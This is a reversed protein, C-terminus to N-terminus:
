TTAKYRVDMTAMGFLIGCRPTYQRVHNCDLGVVVNDVPAGVVDDPARFVSAGDDGPLHVVAQLLDDFLHALLPIGLDDFQLGHGIVNVQQYPDVGLVPNVPQDLLDLTPRRPKQTLLELRKPGPERGEAGIAVENGCNAASWQLHDLLVDCGFPRKITAGEPRTPNQRGVALARSFGPAEWGWV